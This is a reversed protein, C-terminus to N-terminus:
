VEVWGEASLFRHQISNAQALTQEIFCGKKAAGILEIIHSQPAPSELQIDIEFARPASEYLRGVPVWQWTAVTDVKLSEIAVGTRKAFTRIQTMLCATLGSIFYALPPPATGEGGFAAAEDTAMEFPGAEPKSVFRVQMENRMKGVAHASCQLRVERPASTSAGTKTHESM